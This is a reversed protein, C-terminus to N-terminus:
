GDIPSGLYVMTIESNGFVASMCPYLRIPALQNFAIGLFENGKEFYLLHNDCDLIVRIKEGVQYRAPNNTAPYTGVNKGDHCLTNDVLNWGWGQEDSGLLPLYSFSQLAAHRSAVGIVAVTGLPGEWWIEWCHRGSIFGRKGRAADTSQAVPNRHFTFGNQKIYANRSCDAPNWAHLIAQKSEWVYVGLKCRLKAKPSSCEAFLKPDTVAYVPVLKQCKCQWVDANDNALYTYWHRCVTHCSYLDHLSLHAFIKSLVAFPLREALSYGESGRKYVM